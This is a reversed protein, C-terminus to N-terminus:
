ILEKLRHTAEMVKISNSKLTLSAFSPGHKVSQLLLPQYVKPCNNTLPISGRKIAM